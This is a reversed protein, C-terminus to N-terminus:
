IICAFSFVPIADIMQRVAPAQRLDVNGYCSNDPQAGPNAQNITRDPSVGTERNGPLGTDSKKRGM